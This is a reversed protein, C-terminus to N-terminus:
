SLSQVSIEIGPRLEKEYRDYAQDIHMGAKEYLGVAGTLSQADVGLGVKRIGRRYFENFAHRLLALGLGRKRWPRRVGISRVWGRDPDYHAYSRCINVGVIEGTSEEVALFYLTPDYGEHERNRKWQKFGEEFPKEVHGFHDRFADNEAIYVAEADTAPNYTRVTIGEPFEPEPVPADMDIHMYYLSRLHRYGFRAFLRKARENMRYTGVQPAFRLEVPVTPLARLGRLEAWEMMWTGIGLGQYEPDVRGWIEPHVLPHSNIWLEIHGVLEGNPAFIHCADEALNVGPAQWEDLISGVSAFEDRGIVARSCRNFLVMAQEVNDITAARVTFGPPLEVRNKEEMTVKVDGGKELRLSWFSGQSEDDGKPM